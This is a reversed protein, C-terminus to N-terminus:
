SYSFFPAFNPYSFKIKQAANFIAEQWELPFETETIVQRSKQAFSQLAQYNEVDVYLSSDSLNGILSQSSDLTQLFEKLVPTGIIYGPLVPYGSQLLQSLILVKEGVLYKESSKLQSLWYIHNM